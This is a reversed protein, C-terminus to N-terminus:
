KYIIMICSRKFGQGNAPQSVVREREMQIMQRSEQTFTRFGGSVFFCFFVFLLKREAEPMRPVPGLLVSLAWVCM